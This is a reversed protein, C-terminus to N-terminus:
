HERREPFILLSSMSDVSMRGLLHDCSWCRELLEDYDEKAVFINWDLDNILARELANLEAMPLGAVSAYFKNTYCRDELSKNALVLAAALYRHINVACYQFAPCVKRYKILARELLVLAVVISQESCKAFGHLRLVYDKSSIPPIAASFFVHTREPAEYYSFSTPGSHDIVDSLADTIVDLISCVRSNFAM